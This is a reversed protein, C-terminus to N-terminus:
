DLYGFKKQKWQEIGKEGEKVKKIKKEPDELSFGTARWFPIGAYREQLFRCVFFGCNSSNVSQNVVSSTKFKLPEKLKMKDVLAKLDKRIDKPCEDAYSDYYEITKGKAPDCFIGVWHQGPKTSPDTNLVLSWPEGSLPKVSKLYDRPIAGMYGHKRYDKM